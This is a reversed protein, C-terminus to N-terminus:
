FKSTNNISETQREEANRLSPTNQQTESGEDGDGTFGTFLYISDNIVIM